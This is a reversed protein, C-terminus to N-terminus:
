PRPPTPPACSAPTSCERCASTSRLLPGRREGEGHGDLRPMRKGLLSFKTSPDWPAPDGPAVTIEKTQFEGNFGVRLKETMDPRRGDMSGRSLPPPWASTTPSFDLTSPRSDLSPGAPAGVTRGDPRGAVKEVADIVHPYTGCRCLNGAVAARIEGRDPKPIAFGPAGQLVHDDRLHLLRVPPRRGRRLGAPHPLPPRGDRPRRDHHDRAGRGRPRAHPLLLRGRRRRPRHMRRLRRARLRVEHGDAGPPRAARRRAHRPARGLAQPGRRQGEAGASGAGARRQGDRGGRGEDRRRGRDGRRPHRSRSGSPHLREQTGDDSM